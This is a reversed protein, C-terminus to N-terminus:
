PTSFGRSRIIVQFPVPTGINSSANGQPPSFQPTFEITITELENHWGFGYPPTISFSMEGVNNGPDSASPIIIQSQSLLPAWGEPYNILKATVLTQKNGLNTIRIPFTVTEQPGVIRSPKETYVDILPIYGPQFIIDLYADKAAVHENLLPDTTAKLKLTFGEAPADDHPAIVLSTHADQFTTDINPYIAAPTISIAAWDPDNLVTFQVRASTIIFTQLFIIRLVINKLISPPMEVKFRIMIPISVPAGDPQFVANNVVSEDYTVELISEYTIFKASASPAISIIMSFLLIGMILSAKVTKLHKTMKVVM